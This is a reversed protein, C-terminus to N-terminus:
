SLIPDTLFIFCMENPIESTTCNCAVGMYIWIATKLSSTFQIDSYAVFSMDDLQWRFGGNQSELFIIPSIHINEPTLTVTAM